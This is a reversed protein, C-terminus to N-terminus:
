KIEEYKSCAKSYKESHYNDKPQFVKPYATFSYDISVPPNFLCEMGDRFRCKECTIGKWTM